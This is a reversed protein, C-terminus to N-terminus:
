LFFFKRLQDEIPFDGLRHDSVDAALSRAFARPKAMRAHDNFATAARMRAFHFRQAFGAGGHDIRETFQRNRDHLNEFFYCPFTQHTFGIFARHPIGGDCADLCVFHRYASVVDRVKHPM